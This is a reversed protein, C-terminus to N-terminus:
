CVVSGLHSLTIKRGKVEVNRSWWRDWLLDSHELAPRARHLGVNQWSAPVPGTPSGSLGWPESCFLLEKQPSLIRKPPGLGSQLRLTRQVELWPPGAPHPRAWFFWPFSLFFKCRKNLREHEGVKRCVSGMRQRRVDTEAKGTESGSVGLYM